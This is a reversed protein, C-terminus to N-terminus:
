GKRNFREFDQWYKDKYIDYTADMIGEYKKCLEFLVQSPRRLEKCAFYIARCNDATQRGINLYGEFDKLQDVIEDEFEDMLGYTEKDPMGEENGQYGIEVSLIWPHSAKSDWDLLTTNILAFLPRGDPFEAKLTSYTDNETDHRTGTYKEVFEKERWVLYDKLRAIDILEGAAADRSVVGLRDITTVANLEGLFNDLFIYVGNTIVNKDEDNYANHVIVIDVDDPYAEHDIAYFSLNESNFDYGDMHINVDELPLEPKLATFRWNKLCPAARVLEEVFIINPINGEATLILEATNEDYMGCLYYFGEKLEGLKASLLDFFGNEPDARRKLIEYFQGECNIFWDWFDKYTQVPSAQKGFVRKLIGM